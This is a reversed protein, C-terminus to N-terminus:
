VLQHWLPVFRDSESQSVGQHLAEGDRGVGNARLNILESAQAGQRRVLHVQLRVRGLYPERLVLLVDELVMAVLGFRIRTSPTGQEARIRQDSSSGRISFLRSRNQSP